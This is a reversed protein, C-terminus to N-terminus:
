PVPDFLGERDHDECVPLYARQNFAHERVILRDVVLLVGLVGWRALAQRAYVSCTPRFRCGEGPLVHARLHRQYTAVLGDAPGSAAAGTALPDAVVARAPQDFPAFRAVRRCRPAAPGRACAALAVAALAAAVIPTTAGRRAV